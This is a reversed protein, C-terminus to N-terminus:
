EVAAPEENTFGKVSKSSATTSQTSKKPTKKPSMPAEERHINTACGCGVCTVYSLPQCSFLDSNSLGNM